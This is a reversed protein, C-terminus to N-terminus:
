HVAKRDIVEFPVRVSVGRKMLETINPFMRGKFSEWDRHEMQTWGAEALALGRPYTMYTARNMDTIAEGWLTGNVGVIHAQKEAPLGYGPDFSYVSELTTIPMGWNKYEPFDNTYQPYDLYAYEGPAMILKNGHQATLDICLPTLGDRWTTLIVDQPYDFLYEKAPMRINDLECWLSVEKGKERAMPIIKGFFDNMLQAAKTYGKQKMLQSCHECITWNQELVAEDGGLHIYHSPFLDAVETIIDEVFSYVQENNACLMLNTTEGVIKPMTDTHTCGLEPYASLAAVTHGPIDIEPIIEVNRETAYQILVQLEEQTYYNGTQTLGPHKKIQIRWGQDDTLHLQLTNYKYRIMQDIYFKIDEIPLFHRAPDLLLSRYGFRPQDDIEIAVVVGSSSQCSNGLLIQDLTMIGYLIAGSTAGKITISRDSVSLIYHENGLMSTDLILRIGPKDNSLSSLAPTFGTRDCLIRRLESVCFSSEPLDSQIVTKETLVFPPQGTVTTIRNPMPLLASLSNQAVLGCLYCLLCISFLLKNM